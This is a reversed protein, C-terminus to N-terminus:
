VFGGLLFLQDTELDVAYSSVELIADIAASKIDTNFTAPTSLSTWSIPIVNKAQSTIGDEFFWIIDVPFTDETVYDLTDSPLLVSILIKM